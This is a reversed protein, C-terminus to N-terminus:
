PATKWREHPQNEVREPTSKRRSHKKWILTLNVGSGTGNLEEISDIKM